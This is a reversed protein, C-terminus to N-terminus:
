VHRKLWDEMDAFVQGREPENFIEHYFNEYLKLKKDKSGAREYLMKSGEPDSLRDATGHMVLIPLSLTSLKSSTKEIINIFETGLRASTKGRYVLPDNVYADVVAKDRSITSADLVTVGMKPMLLSLVRAMLKSLNNVSTGLKLVTGSLILGDLESQHEIAYATAITGGMSHGVMFIRTNKQEQSVMDCFTKVDDLYYSFREVYGRIGESKGHGRLDFAYIAYGRPVFYNVLNLYRGSHEALGHVVVLVAIPIGNPSWTQYYLKFDNRGLFTGETYRM